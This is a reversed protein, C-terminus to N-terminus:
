PQEVQPHVGALMDDINKRNYGDIYRDVLARIDTPSLPSGGSVSSNLHPSATRRARHTM